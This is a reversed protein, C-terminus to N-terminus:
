NNKTDTKPNIMFYGISVIWSVLGFIIISFGGVHMFNFHTHFLILVLAVLLIGYYGTWKPFVRTRIIAISWFLVAGSLMGTFVYSLGNNLAFSYDLIAHVSTSIEASADHYREMFFSFALGNITAALMGAFLGATIASFAIGSLFSGEEFHRYVGWFGFLCFPIAAIAISHAIVNILTYGDEIGTPHMVMTIVLLIAGAILSFGANKEFTNM